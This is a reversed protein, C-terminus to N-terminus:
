HSLFSSRIQFKCLICGVALEGVQNLLSIEKMTKLNPLRTRSSADRKKTEVEYAATM